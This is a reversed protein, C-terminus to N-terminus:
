SEKYVSFLYILLYKMMTVKCLKTFSVKKHNKYNSSATFSAVLLTKEESDGRVLINYLTFFEEMNINTSNSPCQEMLFEIYTALLDPVLM